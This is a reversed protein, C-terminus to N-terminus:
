GGPRTRRFGLRSAFGVPTPWLKSVRRSMSAMASATGTRLLSMARIFASGFNLATAWEAPTGNPWIAGGGSRDSGGGAGAGCDPLFTGWHTRSKERDHQAGLHRM